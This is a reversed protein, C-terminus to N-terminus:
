RRPRKLGRGGASPGAESEAYGEWEYRENDRRSSNKSLEIARELDDTYSDITRPPSMLMQNDENDNGRREARKKGKDKGQHLRPQSDEQSGEPSTPLRTTSISPRRSLSRVSPPSSPLSAKSARSSTSRAEFHPPQLRGTAFDHLRKYRGMVTAGATFMPQEMIYRCLDDVTEPCYFDDDLLNRAQLDTVQLKLSDLADQLLSRDEDDDEDDYTVLPDISEPPVGLNGIRRELEEGFDTVWSNALDLLMKGHEFVIGKIRAEFWVRNQQQLAAQTERAWDEPTRSEAERLEEETIVPTRVFKGKSEKGLRVGEKHQEAFTMKSFPKDHQPAVEDLIMGAGEPEENGLDTLIQDISGKDGKMEMRIKREIVDNMKKMRRHLHPILGLLGLQELSRRQTENLKSDHQDNSSKRDRRFRRGSHTPAPFGIDEYSLKPAQYLMSRIHDDVSSKQLTSLYQVIDTSNLALISFVKIPLPEVSPDPATRRHRGIRQRYISVSWPCTLQIIVNCRWANIGLEGAPSLTLIRSLEDPDWGDDPPHGEHRNVRDLIALRRAGPTSGRITCNSLGANALLQSWVPMAEVSEIHVGFKSQKSLPLHAESKMIMLILDIACNMKTYGIRLIEDDPKPLRGTAYFDPALTASRAAVYAPGYYALSKPIGDQEDGREDGDPQKWKSKLSSAVDEVEKDILNVNLITESIPGLKLLPQGQSDLSDPSRRIIYPSVQSFAREIATRLDEPIDTTVRLHDALLTPREDAPFAKTSRAEVNEGTPQYWSLADIRVGKLDYKKQQAIQNKLDVFFSSQQDKPANAIGEAEPFRLANSIYLIDEVSNVLPTATMGVRFAAKESLQWIASQTFTASKAKHAEDVILVGLDMDFITSKRNPKNVDLKYNQYLTTLARTGIIIVKNEWKKWEAVIAEIKSIVRAASKWNMIINPKLETSYRTLEQYWQEVLGPPAVVIHPARPPAHGASDGFYGLPFSRPDKKMEDIFAAITESIDGQHTSLLEEYREKQEFLMILAREGMDSKLIDKLQEKSKPSIGEVKLAEPILDLTYFGNAYDSVLGLFLIAQLTKGMSTEDAVIVGSTYDSSPDPLSEVGAYARSLMATAGMYQHLRGVLPVSKSSTSFLRDESSVKPWGDDIGIASYQFLQTKSFNLFIGMGIQPSPDLSAGPRTPNQLHHPRLLDNQDGEPLTGRQMVSENRTEDDSLALEDIDEDEVLNIRSIMSSQGTSKRRQIRRSAINSAEDGGRLAVLGGPFEEGYELMLQTYEILKEPPEDGPRLYEAVKAWSTLTKRLDECIPALKKQTETLSGSKRSGWLRELEGILKSAQKEVKAERKVKESVQKSLFNQVYHKSSVEWFKVVEKEFLDELRRQGRSFTKKAPDKLGDFGFLALIVVRAVDDPICIAAAAEKELDDGSGVGTGERSWSPYRDNRYTGDIGGDRRAAYADYMDWDCADSASKVLSVFTRYFIEFHIRWQKNNDNTLKQNPDFSGPVGKEELFIEVNEPIDFLNGEGAKSGFVLSMMMKMHPTEYPNQHLQCFRDVPAYKHGSKGSKRRRRTGDDNRAAGRGRGRGRGRRSGRSGRSGRSSRSSGSLASENTAWSDVSVRDDTEQGSDDDDEDPSEEDDASDNGPRFSQADYNSDPSLQVRPTSPAPATKWSPRGSPKSM